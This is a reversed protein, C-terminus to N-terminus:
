ELKSVENKLGFYGICSLIILIPTLSVIYRSRAEWIIFFLFFGIVALMCFNILENNNGRQNKACFLIGVLIILHEIRAYGQVIIGVM